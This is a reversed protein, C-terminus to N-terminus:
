PTEKVTPAARRFLPPRAQSDGQYYASFFGLARHAADVCQDARLVASDFGTRELLPLMDVVVDGTARIEGRFRYRSRLQHAQSYGRGDTWKPFAIAVLALHGLDGALAEIDVDIPFVVGTPQERRWGERAAQWQPWDMLVCGASSCPTDSAAPCWPDDATHILKM